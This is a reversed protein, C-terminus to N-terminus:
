NSINDVFILLLKVWKTSRLVIIHQILDTIKLQAVIQGSYKMVSNCNGVSFGEYNLHKLEELVKNTTINEHTLFVFVFDTERWCGKYFSQLCIKCWIIISSFWVNKTSKMGNSFVFCSCFTDGTTIINYMNKSNNASLKPFKKNNQMIKYSFYPISGCFLVTVFWSNLLIIKTWIKYLMNMKGRRVATSIIPGKLLYLVISLWKQWGWIKCLKQMTKHIVLCVNIIYTEVYFWKKSHSLNKHRDSMICFFNSGYENTRDM